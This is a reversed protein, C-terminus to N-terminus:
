EFQFTAFMTSIVPDTFIDSTIEYVRDTHDIFYDAHASGTSYKLGPYNAIMVNVPTHYQGAAREIAIASLTKTQPLVAFYVKNEDGGTPSFFVTGSSLVAPAYEGPHGVSWGDGTYTEWGTPLLPSQAVFNDAGKTPVAFSSLYGFYGFVGLAFVASGGAAVALFRQYAKM